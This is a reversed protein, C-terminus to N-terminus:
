TAQEALCLVDVYHSLDEFFSDKKHYDKRVTGNNAISMATDPKRLNAPHIQSTLKQM